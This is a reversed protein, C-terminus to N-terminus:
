DSIFHQREEAIQTKVITVVFITGILFSLVALLAINRGRRRERLAKGTLITFNEMQADDKDSM